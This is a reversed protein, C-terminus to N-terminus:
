LPIRQAETDRRGTVLTLPPDACHQGALCIRQYNTTPLQHNTTSPRFTAPHLLSKIIGLQARLKHRAQPPKRGLALAPPSLHRRMLRDAVQAVREAVHHTRPRDAGDRCGERSREDPPDREMGAQWPRVADLCSGFGILLD